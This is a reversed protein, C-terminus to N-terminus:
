RSRQKGLLEVCFHNSFSIVPSKLINCPCYSLSFTIRFLMLLGQKIRDAKETVLESVCQTLPYIFCSLGIAFLIFESILHNLGYVLLATIITRVTFAIPRHRLQQLFNKHWLWKISTFYGVNQRESTTVAPSSINPPPPDAQSFNTTQNM